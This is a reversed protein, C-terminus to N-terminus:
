ILFRIMRDMRDTNQNIEVDVSPSTSETPKPSEEKACGVLGFALMTALFLALLRCKSTRNM